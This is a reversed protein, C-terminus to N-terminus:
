LIMAGEDAINGGTHWSALPPLGLLVTHQKWDRDLFHANVAFFSRNQRSTLGDLSLHIMGLATQLLQRVHTAATEYEATFMAELADGSPIGVMPNLSAAFIRFIPSDIARFPLNSATIWDMLLINGLDPRHLSDLGLPCGKATPIAQEQLVISYPPTEFTARARRMSSGRIQQIALDPLGIAV